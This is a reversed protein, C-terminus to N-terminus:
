LQPQITKQPRLPYMAELYVAQACMDLIDEKDQATRQDEPIAMLRDWKAEFDAIKEARIKALAPELKALRVKDAAAREEKSMAVAHNIPLAPPSTKMIINSEPHTRM